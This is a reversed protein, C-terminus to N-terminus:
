TFSSLTSTDYLFITQVVDRCTVNQTCFDLITCFQTFSGFSIDVVTLQNWVSQHYIDQSAYEIAELIAFTNNEITEWTCDSLCFSQFFHQFYATLFNRDHKIQFNRFIFQHSTQDFTSLFRTTSVIIFFSDLFTQYNIM